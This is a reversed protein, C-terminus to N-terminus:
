IGAAALRQRLSQIEAVLDAIVESSSAQMAQYVPNGDADVADKTGSVSGAYVEQFEHALFGRSNQGGETWQYDIPKLSDIREGQGTVSGIVTKLRYDSTTNFTVAATTTVRTISGIVSGGSSFCSLFRAGSADDTSYSDYGGLTGTFTSLIPTAASVVTLKASPSSTGIGVLGTSTIRMREAGNTSFAMTNDAPRFITADSGSVTTNAILKFTNAIADGSVHLKATPSSTGIGVNGSSDIRMRETLTGSPATYFLLLGDDKNTTDAGTVASIQAVATGNWKFVHNGIEGGAGTRNADLIVDVATNGTNKITVDSSLSSEIHLLTSPSSTGIGVNGSTDVRVRESGGTYFTMPLYTGTGSIGSRVNAETSTILFTLRGSNTPDSNNQVSFQSQLATGNPLVNIDTNGNTTSTQFAVRNAITGNSFDGTIRNGTGTFNLNGSDSISTTNLDGNVTLDQAVTASGNIATTGTLQIEVSPVTYQYVTDNTTGVVYMKTGDPKIYLGAPVPEQSAVSFSSVFTATSIDWPTTLNYVNVDDGTSGLVFMRTGDGTFSLDQPATEQGSVSLTQLYTATSVNWATSLTYQYVGDFTSGTIYMSLGDPKFFIGSPVTEQASVSFSISEYSATAVSWPSTLAYQFVTDNTSGVFYMKLGDARFFIGQPNTDQSAVSFVTSYTASSVVWPTSLVYENVDDGGAGTVFMKSGDPSFFLGSPAIEEAAVSFSVSDYTANLVDVNSIITTGFQRLRGASDIRVRETPSAAGDATTSFVLRGPMDNTGPTGDVEVQIRAAEIFATGDYGAYSNRGIINGSVVTTPSAATGNSKSISVVPNSAVGYLLTSATNTDVGVVQTSPTISVGGIQTVFPSTTGSLVRGASDIVFPSSDPNTTDEVLLANGTGLQTIRLAANTNDTTSVVTAKSFTAIGTGNPAITVNGNTDTSSITNGDLRLNDVDLQSFKGTTATTAGITAGDITGGTIVATSLQANINNFNADLEANTLPSGKGARTTISAM